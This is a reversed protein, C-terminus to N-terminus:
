ILRASAQIRHALALDERQEFVQCVLLDNQKSGMAIVGDTLGIPNDHQHISVNGFYPRGLLQLSLCSCEPRQIKALPRLCAALYLRRNLALCLWYSLLSRPPHRARDREHERKRPM